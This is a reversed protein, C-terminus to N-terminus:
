CGHRAPAESVIEVVVRLVLGGCLCNFWLPCVTHKSPLREAGVM